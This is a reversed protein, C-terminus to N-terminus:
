PSFFCFSSSSSSSTCYENHIYNLSQPSILRHIGDIEAVLGNMAVMLASKFQSLPLTFDITNETGLMKPYSSVGVVNGQLSPTQIHDLLESGTHSMEEKYCALHEERM